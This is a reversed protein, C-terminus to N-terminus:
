LACWSTKTGGDYRYAYGKAILLESILAGDVIIDGLVRGGYKDWGRLIVKITKASTITESLYQKANKAHNHEFVCKARAGSEPTDIGIIRLSLYQGLERPLFKADIVVTDGDIVRRIKYQQAEVKSISFILM